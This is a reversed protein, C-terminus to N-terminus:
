SPYCRLPMGWAVLAAALQDVTKGTAGRGAIFLVDLLMRQEPTLSGREAKVEFHYTQGADPGRLKVFILDFLGKRLGQKAADGRAKATTLRVGNLTASWWVGCGEPLALDLYEVMAEQVPAERKIRRRKPKAATKPVLKLHEPPWM